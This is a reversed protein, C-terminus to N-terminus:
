QNPAGAFRSQKASGGFEGGLEGPLTSFGAGYTKFHQEPLMTGYGAFYNGFVGFKNEWYPAMAMSYMPSGLAQLAYPHPSVKFNAFFNGAEVTGKGKFGVKEMEKMIGKFPVNGLGPPLHTEEIGFNDVLHLKKTYPAIIAAEKIVDEESYGRKRILNIHGTDWTAGILQKSIEEAQKKKFGEQKVAKEVFKKRSEDILKKLDEARGGVWDPMVNEIAIIPAKKGFRKYSALAASSFTESAKEKVFNETTTYTEPASLSHLVSIADDLKISLEPTDNYGKNWEKAIENLKERGSKVIQHKLSDVSIPGPPLRMEKLQSKTAGKKAKEILRIQNKAEQELTPSDKYWENYHKYAKDFLGSFRAAVDGYLIGAKEMQQWSAMQAHNLPQVNGNGLDIVPTKTKPDTKIKDYVPALTKWSNQFLRDGENKLQLLSTTQNIWQTDNMVKLREEPTYVRPKGKEVEKPYWLEERQAMGIKGTEREVVGIAEKEGEVPKAWTTGPVGANSHVTVIINGKPNAENSRGLVSILAREAEKRSAESWGERTFGSPDVIPAHMSIESGALQAMRNIEKFHQKPITDFLDQKLPQMEVWKMGENLRNSVESLQNATQPSTPAGIRSAAFRYGTFLDTNAYNTSSMSGPYINFYDGEKFNSYDAM